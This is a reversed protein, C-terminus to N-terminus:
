SSKSEKGATEALAPTAPSKSKSEKGGGEALVQVVSSKSFELKVDEAVRLVVKVDDVGVVTGYIGGNTLVKDGKKLAKLMRDMQKQRQQQPRILLFYLILFIPAFQLLQLAITLTPNPSGAPSGATQAWADSWM